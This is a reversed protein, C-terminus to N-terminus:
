VLKPPQWISTSVDAYSGEMYLIAATKFSNFPTKLTTTLRVVASAACCSCHCFPTCADEVANDSPHEHSAVTVRTGEHTSEHVDACPVLNLVLVIIIFIFSFFRM